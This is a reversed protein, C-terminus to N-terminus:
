AGSREGLYSKLDHASKVRRELGLARLLGLLANTGQTYVGLDLKGNDVAEREMTELQLAIFVARECLTRKQASDAGTDQRLVEVRRRIEKVLACRGDAESWFQPVFREPITVVRKGNRM